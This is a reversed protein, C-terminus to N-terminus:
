TKCQLSHLASFVNLTLRISVLQVDFVCSESEQRVFRIYQCPCAGTNEREKTRRRTSESAVLRGRTHPHCTRRGDEKKSTYDDKM